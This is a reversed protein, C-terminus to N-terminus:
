RVIGARPIWYGLHGRRVLVGAERRSPWRAAPADAHPADEWGCRAGAVSQTRRDRIRDVRHGADCPDAFGLALRQPRRLLIRHGYEYPHAVHDATQYARSLGENCGALLADEM